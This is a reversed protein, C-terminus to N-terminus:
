VVCGSLTELKEFKGDKEIRQDVRLKRLISRSSNRGMQVGEYVIGIKWVTEILFISIGNGTANLYWTLRDRV